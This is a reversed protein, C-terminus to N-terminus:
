ITPDTIYITLEPTSPCMLQEEAEAHQIRIKICYELKNLRDTELIWNDTGMEYIHALHRQGGKETKSATAGAERTGQGHRVLHREARCCLISYTEAM